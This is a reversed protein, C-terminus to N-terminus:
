TSQRIELNFAGAADIDIVEEHHLNRILKM